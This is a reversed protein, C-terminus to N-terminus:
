HIPRTLTDPALLMRMRMRAATWGWALGEPMCVRRRESLFLAAVAAAAAAAAAAFRAATSGGVFCGIVAEEV